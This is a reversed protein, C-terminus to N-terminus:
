GRKAALKKDHGNAKAAPKDDTKPPKGAGIIGIPGSRKMPEAGFQEKRRLM